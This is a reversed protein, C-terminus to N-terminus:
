PRRNVHCLHIGTQWGFGKLRGGCCRESQARHQAGAHAAALGQAPCHEVEGIRAVGRHHDRGDVPSIEDRDDGAAGGPGRQSPGCGQGKGVQQHQQAGRHQASPRIHVRALLPQRGQGRHTAHEGGRRQAPDPRAAHHQGQRQQHQRIRKKAGAAIQHRGKQGFQRPRLAQARQRAPAPPQTIHPAQQAQRQTQGVDM